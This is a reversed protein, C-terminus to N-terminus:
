RPQPSDPQDYMAVFAIVPTVCFGLLGSSIAKIAIFRVTEISEGAFLCYLSCVPGALLLVGMLGFKAARIMLQGSMRRVWRPSIRPSIRDAVGQHLEYRVIPSVILCTIFPLFFCTGISDAVAGGDAAWTAVSEQGHFVLMGIAFNVVINVFFPIIAYRVLLYRFLDPPRTM